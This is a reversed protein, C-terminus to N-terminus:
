VSERRRAALTGRPVIGTAGRIRPDSGSREEICKTGELNELTVNPLLSLSPRPPCGRVRPIVGKGPAPSGAFRFDEIHFM